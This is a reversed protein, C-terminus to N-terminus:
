SGDLVPNHVKKTAPVARARGLLADSEWPPRRAEVDSWSHQSLRLAVLKMDLCRIRAGFGNDLTVNAILAAGTATKSIKPDRTRKLCKTRMVEQPPGVQFGSEHLSTVDSVMDRGALFTLM